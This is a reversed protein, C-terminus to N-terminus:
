KIHKWLEEKFSPEFYDRDAVEAVIQSEVGADEFRRMVEAAKGGPIVAMLAGSSILRLPDIDLHACLRRVPRRLVTDGCLRLGRGAMMGSLETLGGMIGGETPDHMFLADDKVMQAMGYVSIEESYKEIELRDAEDLVGSLEGSRAKFIIYTGELAVGGAIVVKDGPEALSIDYLRDSEGIITASLIPRSVARSFETHGGIVSIGYKKCRGDIDKMMRGVYEPGLEEPIIMTLVIYRPKGGKVAIDNVNIDVLFGGADEAGAGVVPDSSILMYKGGGNDIVAADEGIGPGRLVAADAAGKYKFVYEALMEPSMKGTM